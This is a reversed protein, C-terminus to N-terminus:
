ELDKNAQAETGSLSLASTKSQELPQIRGRVLVDVAVSDQGTIAGVLSSGYRTRTGNVLPKTPWQKSPHTVPQCM